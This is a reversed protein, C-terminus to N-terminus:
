AGVGVCEYISYSSVAFVSCPVQKIMVACLVCLVHSDESNVQQGGPPLLLWAVTVCHLLCGGVVVAGPQHIEYVHGHQVEEHTLLGCTSSGCIGTSSRIVITEM